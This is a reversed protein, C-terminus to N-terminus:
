APWLRRARPCHRRMGTWARWEEVEPGTGPRTTRRHGKRVRMARRTTACARRITPTTPRWARNPRLMGNAGGRPPLRDEGRAGRSRRGEGGEGASARRFVSSGSRPDPSELGSHRRSDTGHDPNPAGLRRNEPSLVGDTRRRVSEHFRGSRTDPSDIMSRDATRIGIPTRGPRGCSGQWARTWSGLDLTCRPTRRRPSLARRATGIWWKVM